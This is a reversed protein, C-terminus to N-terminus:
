VQEGRYAKIPQVSQRKDLDHLVNSNNNNNDDDDDDDDDDDNIKDFGKDV